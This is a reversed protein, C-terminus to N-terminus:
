RQSRLGNGSFSAVALVAGIGLGWFLEARSGRFIGDVICSVAIATILLRGVRRLSFAQRAAPAATATAKLGPAIPARTAEGVEGPDPPLSARGCRPCRRWGDLPGAPAELEAQCRPCRYTVFVDLQM